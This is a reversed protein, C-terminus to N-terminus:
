KVKKRIMLIIDKCEERRGFFIFFLSNAVLFCIVGKVVFYFLGTNPFLVCINYSITSATIAVIGFQILDKYYIKESFKFYEKFLVHTEWPLEILAYSIITSLIVGKMGIVQVSIINLVFNVVCGVLPKWKDAWWMGTADKYVIVVKRTEGVYFYLVMLIVLVNDALLTPGVWINMFHQYLCVLCPVCWTIAWQNIINLKRFNRYNKEIGETVVSNGIGATTASICVWIFSMLSSVIYFYNSYIALLSLGLFSSIIISDLSTSITQGFRQITLATVRKIIERKEEERIKGCSRYQPYMRYSVISTIMGSIFTTLPLFFIYIYYNKLLFLLVIKAADLVLQTISNINTEVDSRQFAVLLAKRHAFFFYSIVTNALYMLYLLQLNLGDPYSGKIFIELHPLLAIGAILIITGITRYIKQYLNLLACISREDNEAIPKYMCYVIASSFGLDALNLVQLISSFLSSLGLYDEGLVKILATRLIFPILLGVVRNIIGAFANRTANKTRSQM